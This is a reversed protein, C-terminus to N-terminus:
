QGVRERGAARGITGQYEVLQAPMHAPIGMAMDIGEPETLDFTDGTFNRVMENMGNVGITSFHNRLFPLYRSTYPYLGRDYMQQVFARKKELTSSAIDMLRDLERMLGDQDGRFRYGLAAMNITVVGLSGTMLDSSCVDSSWDSIRMEYATKQKFVFVDGVINVLVFFLVFVCFFFGVLDVCGVLSTFM